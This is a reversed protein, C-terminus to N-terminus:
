LCYEPTDDHRPRGGGTREHASLPRIRWRWPHSAHIARATQVSMRPIGVLHFIPLREAYSGAVANTASLEGVGYTTSLAAAGKVRAYGDAAYGANLENCCCIWRLKPDALVADCVSFSYDGPVGFVDDIGIDKLRNLVHEIATASM